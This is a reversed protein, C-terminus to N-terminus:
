PLDKPVDEPSANRAAERDQQEPTPYFSASTEEAVRSGIPIAGGERYDGLNEAREEGLSRREDPTARGSVDGQGHDQKVAQEYGRTPPASRIPGAM